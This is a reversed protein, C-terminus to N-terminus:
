AVRQTACWVTGFVQAAIDGGRSQRHWLALLDDLHVPAIEAAYTRGQQFFRVAGAAPFKQQLLTCYWRAIDPDTYELRPKTAYLERGANLVGGPSMGALAELGRPLDLRFQTKVVLNNLLFFM